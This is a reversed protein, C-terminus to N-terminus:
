TTDYGAIVLLSPLLLLDTLLAIILTITTVLGFMALSEFQSLMMCSFGLCLAITTLVLCPGILQYIDGLSHKADVHGLVHATDDVALGLAVCGVLSTGMSIPIDLWGIAGGCLLLPMLNPIAAVTALRFSRLGLLMIIGILVVAMGLGKIMGRTLGDMARSYLYTTGLTNVTIGAPAQESLGEVDAAIDIIVSSGGDVSAILSLASREFNLYRNYDEPDGSLEYLLLYQSAASRSGPNARPPRDTVLAADMLYFYDLMSVTRDVNESAEVQEAIRDTFALVDPDLIRDQEDSRVVFNVLFGSALHEGFFEAGVRVLNADGFYEITDTHVRVRLLGPVAVVVLLGTVGVLIWPKKALRVGIVSTREFAHIRRADFPGSIQQILAPLLLLAGAIAALIGIALGAGLEGIADVDIMMLSLFGIGTSFGSLLVPRFLLAILEVGPEPKGTVRGVLGITYIVYTSSMALLITPLCSVVVNLPTNSLGLWALAVTEVWLGLMLLMGIPFVRRTFWFLVICITILTAPTLIALDRKVIRNAEFATVPYGAYYVDWPAALENVLAMINATLENMAESNAGATDAYVLMGFVDQKESVLTQHYLRHDHMRSRIASLDRDLTKLDVLPSADLTDDTGRIDETSSLDKVNDIEPQAAIEGSIMALKRLDSAEFPRGIDFAIMLVEDNGFEQKALTDLDRLPDNSIMLHEVSGDITIRSAAGAAAITLLAFVTIVARSHNRILLQLKDL